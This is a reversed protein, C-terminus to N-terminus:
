LGTDSMQRDGTPWEFVNKEDDYFQITKELKLMGSAYLKNFIKESLDKHIRGAEGLASNAFLNTSIQYASLTEKQLTHNKLFMIPSRVLLVTQNQRSMAQKSQSETVTPAPFLSSTKKVSEITYFRAFIDAHVFVDGIHGFHLEKNGYPMGATIVAREPFTPRESMKENM